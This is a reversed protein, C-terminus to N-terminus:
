PSFFFLFAYSPQPLQSKISSESPPTFRSITFAASYPGILTRLVPRSFISGATPWFRTPLLKPAISSSRKAQLGSTTMSMTPLWSECNLWNKHLCTDTRRMCVYSAHLRGAVALCGPPNLSRAAENSAQFHHAVSICNHLAAMYRFLDCSQGPIRGENL